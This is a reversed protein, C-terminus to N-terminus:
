LSSDVTKVLRIFESRYGKQDTGKGSTALTLVDNLNANNLYQSKRLHMGFLAVASSFKFDPTMETFQNKYVAVMEISKDENPKKYRFKVTFLDDSYENKLEPQTYKLDPIEKLFESEVGVPIIEYLATVTHGSGLEGADKRDDIFDEDALLRNEYGILRYAQVKTPNFEIQIKVDKAITYLTGGFEEGFIKQAEQMTDIYAHNGNGKDALKELKSDKYNGMGFGLVSLFIGSKRKEEILTEMDKDSSAGVNFDGDTAMIVRNNKNPKFNKEALAYALEIGEGGATSGGASLNDLAKIIKEKDNGGTPELVVGAAGAYVVISVRDKERLQHVLLKFASKLLPLKNQNNMSGSVDILFTLNSAPLDENLYEKGQLGIRVIKTAANWPTKAAELNISFPHEGLPQPYDYDFYNIMEEIKVADIPIQSGANILRRINSYGAKDVDISFTSLPSLALRKFPNETLQAYKEDNTIKYNGRKTRIVICGNKASSGYLGIAKNGKYVKIKDITDPDLNAVISNNKTHIAVGDVIYLPLNNESVTKNGSIKIEAPSYSIGSLQSEALQNHVPQPSNNKVNRSRTRRQISESHVVTLAATTSRKKQVGYGVIVVEDLQNSAVELIVNIILTDTVSIEKTDYGLYAFVLKDGKSASISYKGDFDTETGSAAKDIYVQVGPLPGTQDSVIGSITKVQANITNSLMAIFFLLLTNKM